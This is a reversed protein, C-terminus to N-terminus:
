LPAEGDCYIELYSDIDNEWSAATSRTTSNDDVGGVCETQAGFDYAQSSHHVNFCRGTSEVIVTIRANPHEPPADPSITSQRLRWQHGSDGGTFELTAGINSPTGVELIMDLDGCCECDAPNGANVMEYFRLFALYDDHYYTVSNALQQALKGANSGPDFGCYDDFAHQFSEETVPQGKLNDFMCCRVKRQAEVDNLMSQWAAQDYLVAAAIAAGAIASLGGTILTLAAALGVLLGATIGGVTDRLNAQVGYTGIQQSVFAQVAACLRGETGGDDSFNDGISPALSQPTGDYIMNNWTQQFSNNTVYQNYQELYQNYIATYNQEIVTDGNDIITQSNDIITTNQTIITVLNNVVQLLLDNTEPCCPDVPMCDNELLFKAVWEVVQNRAWEVDHTEDPKWTDPQNMGTLIVGLFHAAWAKNVKLCYTPEDFISPTPIPTAKTRPIIRPLAQLAEDETIIPRHYPSRPM